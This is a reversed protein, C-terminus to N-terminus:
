LFGEERTESRINENTEVLIKGKDHTRVGDKEGRM